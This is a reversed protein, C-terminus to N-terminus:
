ETRELIWIFTSVQLNDLNVSTSERSFDFPFLVEQFFDENFNGNNDRQLSEFLPNGYIIKEGQVLMIDNISLDVTFRDSSENYNIGITYTKGTLAIEFSYPILEKEIPLYDAM